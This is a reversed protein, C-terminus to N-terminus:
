PKPENFVAGQPYRDVVLTYHGALPKSTNLKLGDAPFVLICTATEM